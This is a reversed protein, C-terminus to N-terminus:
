VPIHPVPEDAAARLVDPLFKYESTSPEVKTSEMAATSRQALTLQRIMEEMALLREEMSAGSRESVSRRPEPTRVPLRLPIAAQGSQQQSQATQQARSLEEQKLQESEDQVARGAEGGHPEM